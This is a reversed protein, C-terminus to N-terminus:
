PNGETSKKQTPPPPFTPRTLCFLKSKNWPDRRAPASPPAKKRYAQNLLLCVVRHNMRDLSPHAHRRCSLLPSPLSPAHICMASHTVRDILSDCLARM